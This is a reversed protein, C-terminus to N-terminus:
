LVKIRNDQLQSPKNPDVAKAKLSSDDIGYDIDVPYYKGPQKEFEDRDAWRNGTKDLYVREFLEVAKRATACKDLKSSGVWTGVRGWKRWVHWTEAKEDEIVQLNYYANAGTVV